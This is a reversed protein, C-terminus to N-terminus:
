SDFVFIVFSSLWVKERIGRKGKRWRPVFHSDYTAYWMWANGDGNELVVFLVGQFHFSSRHFLRVLDGDILNAVEAIEMLQYIILKQALAKRMEVGHIKRPFGGDFPM